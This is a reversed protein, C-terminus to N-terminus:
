EQEVPPLFMKRTIESSRDAPFLTLLYPVISRVGEAEANRDIQRMVDIIDFDTWDSMLATAKEPEMSTIKIALDKVVNERKMFDSLKGRLFEEQDEINGRMEVLAMKEKELEEKQIKLEEALQALDEEKELLKEKMKEFTMKDVETPYGKDEIKLPNSPKLFPAMKGANIVGVSDLIYILVGSVVLLSIILLVVTKRDSM